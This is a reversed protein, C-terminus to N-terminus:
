VGRVGGGGGFLFVERGAVGGGRGWVIGGVSGGGGGLGGHSPWLRIGGGVASGGLGGVVGACNCGEWGGGGLGLVIFSGEPHMRRGGLLASSMGPGSLFPLVPGGSPLPVGPRM